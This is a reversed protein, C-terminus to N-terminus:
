TGRLENTPLQKWGRDGTHDHMHEFRISPDYYMQIGAAICDHAFFADYHAKLLTSDYRFPFSEIVSRHILTCGMTLRHVFGPEKENFFGPYCNTVIVKAVGSNAVNLLQQVAVFNLLVDSELSLYWQLKSDLFFADRLFNVTSVIRKHISDVQNYYGDDFELDCVTLNKNEERRYYPIVSGKSNGAVLVTAGPLHSLVVDIFRGACYRKCIHTPVAVFLNSYPGSLLATPSVSNM